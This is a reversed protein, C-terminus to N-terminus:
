TSEIDDNNDIDKDNDHHHHDDNIDNDTFWIIHSALFQCAISLLKLLITHRLLDTLLYISNYLLKAELFRIIVGVMFSSFEQQICECFILM